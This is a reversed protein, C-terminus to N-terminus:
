ARFTFLQVIVLSAILENSSREYNLKVKRKFVKGDVRKVNNIVSYFINM